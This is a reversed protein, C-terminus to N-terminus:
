LLRQFYHSHILRHTRWKNNRDMSFSLGRKVEGSFHSVRRREVLNRSM